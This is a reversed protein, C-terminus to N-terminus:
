KINQQHKKSTTKGSIKDSQKSDQVISSHHSLTSTSSAQSQPTLTCDKHTVDANNSNSHQRAANAVPIDNSKSSSHLKNDDSTDSVTLLEDSRSSGIGSDTLRDMQGVAHIDTQRSYHAHGSQSPQKKPTSQCSAYDSPPGEKQSHSQNGAYIPPPAEVATDYILAIEKKDESRRRIFYYIFM